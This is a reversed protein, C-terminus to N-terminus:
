ENEVKSFNYVVIFKRTDIYTNRNTGYSPAFHSLLVFYSVPHSFQKRRADPYLRYASVLFLYKQLFSAFIHCFLLM